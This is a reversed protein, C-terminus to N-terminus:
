GNKGDTKEKVELPKFAGLAHPTIAGCNNCVVLIAPVNSGGLVTEGIKEHIPFYSYGDVLAFNPHGCRHCPKLANKNVLEDIYEQRNIRKDSM